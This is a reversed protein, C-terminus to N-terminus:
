HHKIGVASQGPAQTVHKHKQAIYQHSEHISSRRNFRSQFICTHVRDHCLLRFLDPHIANAKSGQVRSSGLDLNKLRNRFVGSTRNKTFIHQTDTQYLALTNSNFECHSISLYVATEPPKVRCRAVEDLTSSFSGHLRFWNALIEPARLRHSLM